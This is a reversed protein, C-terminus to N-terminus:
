NKILKDQKRKWMTFMHDHQHFKRSHYMAIKYETLAAKQAVYLKIHFIKNKRFLARLLKEMETGGSSLNGYQRGTSNKM